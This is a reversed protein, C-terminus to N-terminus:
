MLGLPLSDHKYFILVISDTRSPGYGFKNSLQSLYSGDDLEVRFLEMFYCEFNFLHRRPLCTPLAGFTMPTNLTVPCNETIKGGFLFRLPSGGGASPKVM